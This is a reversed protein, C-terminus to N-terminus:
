VFGFHRKCLSKSYIRDNVMLSYDPEYDKVKKAVPASHELISSLMASAVKTGLELCCTFWSDMQDFSPHGCEPITDSGLSESWHELKTAGDRPLTTLARLCAYLEPRVRKATTLLPERGSGLRDMVYVATLVTRRIYM